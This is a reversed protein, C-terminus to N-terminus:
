IGVGCWKIYWGWSLAIAPTIDSPNMDYIFITFGTSTPFYVSTAGTTRWHGSTGNISTFYSPSSTFGALSTNVDVRIVDVMYQTWDVPTTEGCVMKLNAGATNKINSAGAVAASIATNMSGRNVAENDATPNALNVIRNTSGMDLNGQMASTAGGSRAVFDAPLNNWDTVTLQGGTSKSYNGTLASAFQMYSLPLFAMLILVALIILWHNFNNKNNDMNINNIINFVIINYWKFVFNYL